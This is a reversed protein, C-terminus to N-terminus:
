KHITLIVNIHIALVRLLKHYPKYYHMIIALKELNQKIIVITCINNLCLMDHHIYTYDFQLHLIYSYMCVTCM